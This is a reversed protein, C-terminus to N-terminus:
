YCPLELFEAYGVTQGFYLQIETRINQRRYMIELDGSDVGAFTDDVKAVATEVQTLVVDLVKDMHHDYAEQSTVLLFSTHKDQPVCSFSISMDRLQARIHPLNCSLYQTIKGRLFPSGNLTINLAAINAM